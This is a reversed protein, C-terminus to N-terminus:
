VNFELANRVFHSVCKNRIHIKL